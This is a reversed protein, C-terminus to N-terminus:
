PAGPALRVTRGEVYAAIDEVVDTFFVEYSRPTVYGMHPTLVVNPISRLPHDVPLPEHDFVDLGAGAIWGERLAALLAPEDIIPGRSTNVLFASPKMSRLEPESLLGRTRDSLVLHISVVDSTRLLEDKEVLAVGISRCREATLNQSWAVVTMGFAQAVKSVASGYNGLGLVGLQAGYLDLGMRTQWAGERVAKDCECVRKLCALILAWTLETTPPMHGRTACVKVGHDSAADLDIVANFPGTTVLLKLRPLREFLSRRLPTRERMAVVIDYNSITHALEAEDAIHTSLTDVEVRNRLISWDASALAVGQYDDLVVARYIAIV